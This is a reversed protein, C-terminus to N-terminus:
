SGWRLGRKFSWEALNIRDCKGGGVGRLGVRGATMTPCLRTEPTIAEGALGFDLLLKTEVKFVETPLIRIPSQDIRM